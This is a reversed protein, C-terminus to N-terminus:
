NGDSHLILETAPPRTPNRSGGLKQRGWGVWSSRGRVLLKTAPISAQTPHPAARRGAIRDHEAPARVTRETRTRPRVTQSPASWDDPLGRNDVEHQHDMIGWHSTRRTHGAPQSGTTPRVSPAPSPAHSNCGHGHHLRHALGTTPWHKAPRYPAASTLSGCCGGGGITPHRLMASVPTVRSRWVELHLTGRTALFSRNTRTRQEHLPPLDQRTAQDAARHYPALGPLL